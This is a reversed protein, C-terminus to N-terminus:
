ILTSLILLFMAVYIWVDLFSIREEAEAIVKTQQEELDSYIKQFEREFERQFDAIQKDIVFKHNDKHTSENPIPAREPTGKENKM